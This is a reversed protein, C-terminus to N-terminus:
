IELYFGDETLLFDGDETALLTALYESINDYGADYQAYDIGGGVYDLTFAIGAPTGKGNYLINSFDPSAWYPGFCYMKETIFYMYLKKRRTLKECSRAIAENFRHLKGEVRYEPDHWEKNHWQIETEGTKTRHGNVIGEVLTILGAELATKFEAATPVNGSATVPTKSLIVQTVREGYPTACIPAVPQDLDNTCSYILDNM